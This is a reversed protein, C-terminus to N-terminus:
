LLPDSGIVLDGPRLILDITRTPVIHRPEPQYVEPLINVVVMIARERRPSPVLAFLYQAFLTHEFRRRLPARPWSDNWLTPERMLHDSHAYSALLQAAVNGSTRLPMLGTMTTFLARLEPRDRKDIMLLLTLDDRQLALRLGASIAGIMAIPVTSAHTRA